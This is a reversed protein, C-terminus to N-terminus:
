ESESWIVEFIDDVFHQACKELVEPKDHVLYYTYDYVYGEVNQDGSNNAVPEESGKILVTLVEIDAYTVDEKRDEYDTYKIVLKEINEPERVDVFICSILERNENTYIIGDIQKVLRNTIMDPDYMDIADKVDSLLKRGPEDKNRDWFDNDSLMNKIASISSIHSIMLQEDAYKGQGVIEDVKNVFSDKGASNAGNLIVVFHKDM